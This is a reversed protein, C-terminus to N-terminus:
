KRITNHSAISVKVQLLPLQMMAMHPSGGAPSNTRPTIILPNHGTTPLIPWYEIEFDVKLPEIDGSM